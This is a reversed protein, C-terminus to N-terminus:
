VMGRQKGAFVKEKNLAINVQTACAHLYILLM